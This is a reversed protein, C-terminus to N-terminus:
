VCENSEANQPIRGDNVAPSGVRGGESASSDSWVRKANSELAVDVLMMM